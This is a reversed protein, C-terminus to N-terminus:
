RDQRAARAGHLARRAGHGSVEADTRCAGDLEEKTGLVFEHMQKGHNVLVFRITEGQKVTIRDARLADRGDHSHSRGRSRRQMEPSVLPSRNRSSPRPGKQTRAHEGHARAATAPMISLTAALTGSWLVNRLILKM